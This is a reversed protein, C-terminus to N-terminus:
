DESNNGMKKYPIERDAVVFFDWDSEKRGMGRVRSGFLLIKIM